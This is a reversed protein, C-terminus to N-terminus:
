IMRNVESEKLSQTRRRKWSWVSCNTTQHLGRALRACRAEYFIIVCDSYTIPAVPLSQTRRRHYKHEVTTTDPAVESRYAADQLLNLINLHKTTRMDHLTAPLNWRRSGYDLDVPGIWGEDTKCVALQLYRTLRMDGLRWPRSARAVITEHRPRGPWSVFSSRGTFKTDM